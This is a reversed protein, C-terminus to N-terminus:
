TSRPGSPSSSGGLAINTTLAEGPNLLLRPTQIVLGITDRRAAAGTSLKAIAEAPAAAIREGDEFVEVGAPTVRFAYTRWGEKPGGLRRTSPM